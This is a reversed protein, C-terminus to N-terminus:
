NFGNKMVKLREAILMKIKLLVPVSKGKENPHSHDFTNNLSLRINM